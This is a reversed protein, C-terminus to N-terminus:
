KIRIWRGKGRTETNVAHIQNIGTKVTKEIERETEMVSEEKVVVVVVHLSPLVLVLFWGHVDISQWSSM